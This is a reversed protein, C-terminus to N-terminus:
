WADGAVSAPKHPAIPTAVMKPTAREVPVVKLLSMGVRQRRGSVPSIEEVNCTKSNVKKIRVTYSIGDYDFTATRGVAPRTDLRAALLTEIHAKMKNLTETGLSNLKSLDM